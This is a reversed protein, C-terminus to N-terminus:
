KCHGTLNLWLVATGLIDWADWINPCPYFSLMLHQMLLRSPKKLKWPREFIEEWTNCGHQVDSSILQTFAFWSGKGMHFSCLFDCILFIYKGGRQKSSAPGWLGVALRRNCYFSEVCIWQAFAPAQLVTSYLYSSLWTVFSFFFFCTFVLTPRYNNHVCVFDRWLIACM